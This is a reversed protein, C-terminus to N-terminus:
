FIKKISKVIKDVSLGHKDKLFQYSGGKSYTDDIGLRIFKTKLNSESIVESIASGLGGIINHEEVSIILKSSKSEAIISDKDIPKITHMNIVTTFINDKVSATTLRSSMDCILTVSPPVTSTRTTTSAGESGHGMVNVKSTM